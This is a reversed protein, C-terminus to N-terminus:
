VECILIKLRKTEGVVTKDIYPDGIVKSVGADNEIEHFRHVAQKESHHEVIVTALVNVDVPLPQEKDKTKAM